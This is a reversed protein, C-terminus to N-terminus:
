RRAQSPFWAEFPTETEVDRLVLQHGVHSRGGRLDDELGVYRFALEERILEKAAQFALFFDPPSEEKRLKWWGSVRETVGM